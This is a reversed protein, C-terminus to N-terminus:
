IMKTFLPPIALLQPVYKEVEYGYAAPAWLKGYESGNEIQSIEDGNDHVTKKVWERGKLAPILVPGPEQMLLRNGVFGIYSGQYGLTAMTIVFYKAPSHLITVMASGIRMMLFAQFALLSGVKARFANIKGMEGNVEQQCQLVRPVTRPDYTATGLKDLYSRIGSYGTPTTTAAAPLSHQGTGDGGQHRTSRPPGQGETARRAPPIGM